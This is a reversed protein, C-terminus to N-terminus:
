RKDQRIQMGTRADLIFDLWGGPPDWEGAGYIKNDNISEVIVGDIGLVESIWLIKGSETVATLQNENAIYFVGDNNLIHGFYGSMALTLLQKKEGLDFLYCNQEHGIALTKGSLLVEKFPSCKVDYRIEFVYSEVELYLLLYECRLFHSKAESSIIIPEQTMGATNDSFTYYM